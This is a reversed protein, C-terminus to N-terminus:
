GLKSSGGIVPRKSVFWFVIRKILKVSEGKYNSYPNMLPKGKLM